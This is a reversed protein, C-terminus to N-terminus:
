RATVPIEPPLSIEYTGTATLSKGTILETFVVHAIIQRHAPPDGQRWPCKVTFHQTMLRGHWLKRAHEWDFDYRAFEVGGPPNLPDLLKVMLTGPAKVVHQDRDIPQVYLVIGDDGAEDDDDYGGSRSALEIREPVILIDAPDGKDVDALNAVQSSLARIASARM